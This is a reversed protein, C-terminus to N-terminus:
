LVALLNAEFRFKMYVDVTMATSVVQKNSTIFKMKFSNGILYPKLETADIDLNLTDSTSAINHKYAIEAAPLSDTLIFIRVDQLAAFTQGPPTKISLTLTQLKVSQVLDTSTNNAKMQQQVDTAISPSTFSDTAASLTQQPITGSEHFEEYFAIHKLAGCSSLVSLCIIISFAIINKM